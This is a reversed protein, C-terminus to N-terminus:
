RDELRELLEARYAALEEIADPRELELGFEADSALAARVRRALERQRPSLFGEPDAATGVESEGLSRAGLAANVQRAQAPTLDVFRLESRRLYYLQDAAAAERVAGTFLVAREGVKSRALELQAADSAFVKTDCRRAIAAGLLEEYRLVEPRFRLEVVEHAGIWVTRTSIVGDLSGM